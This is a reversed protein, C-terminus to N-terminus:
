YKDAQNTFDIKAFTSDRFHGNQGSQLGHNRGKPVNKNNPQFKTIHLKQAESIALMAM